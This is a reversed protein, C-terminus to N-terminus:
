ARGEALDDAQTVARMEAEVAAWDKQWLDLDFADNKPARRLVDALSGQAPRINRPNPATAKINAVVADLSPLATETLADRLIDLAVEEISRQQVKARQQLQIALTDPVTITTTM